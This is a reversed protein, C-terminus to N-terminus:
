VVSKRDTGPDGGMVHFNQGVQTGFVLCVFRSHVSHVNGDIMSAAARLSAGEKVLVNGTVHAGVMECHVGPPVVVNQAVGTFAGVCETRGREAQFLPGTVRPRVPDESCALLALVAIIMPVVPRSM